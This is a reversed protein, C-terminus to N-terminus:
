GGPRRPRQKAVISKIILEGNGKAPMPLGNAEAAHILAGVAPERLKSVPKLQVSRVQSGGGELLRDPDPLDVGRLFFLRVYKPYLAISLIIDGVKDSAGFGVVLANYNDYVLQTATPLRARLFDLATRADAAVEPSYKDIFADLQTQADM